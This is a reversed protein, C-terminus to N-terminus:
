KAKRLGYRGFSILKSPKLYGQAYTILEGKENAIVLTPYATVKFQRALGPGDGKEMDIAVNVFHENFFDGAKKDTFTTERLLRCPGCWAAYADLFILKHQARATALAKSWSAQFRIGGDGAAPIAPRDGDKVSIFAMASTLAIFLLSYIFVKM